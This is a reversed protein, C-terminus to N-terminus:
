ADTAARLEALLQEGGEALIREAARVGLAAAEAPAGRCEARISREGGRSALLARLRLMEGDPEAYAALPANCDAGLRRLVGREAAAQAATAADSLAAVDRALPEGARAEVAVIGQGAAPLMIEPALRQDIREALGLRELGACALVVGALDEEELKRLRTPVNGRLPVVVLDPRLRRLQATRRLSGTGIRSGAPLAELSAGRERAVLADRPDARLPFAVLALGEPLEAPLDKTSHVALDARGELLAEEVEKVFLGKGGVRALSGLLRDGTTKTAVIETPIGLRAELMGAVWRAQALALESARTAIRVLSM